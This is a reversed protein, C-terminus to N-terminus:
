VHFHYDTIQIEDEKNFYFCFRLISNQIENKLKEFFRFPVKPVRIRWIMYSDCILLLVTILQLECFFFFFFFLANKADNIKDSSIKKLMQTKNWNKNSQICKWFLWIKCMLFWQEMCKKRTKLVTLLWRSSTSLQTRYSWRRRGKRVKSESLEHELISFFNEKENTTM